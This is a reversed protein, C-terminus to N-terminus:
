KQIRLLSVYGAKWLVEEYEMNELQPFLLFGMTNNLVSDYYIKVYRAISGVEEM